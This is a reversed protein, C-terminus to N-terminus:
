YIFILLKAWDVLIVRFKLCVLLFNVM